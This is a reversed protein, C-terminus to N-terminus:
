QHNNKQGCIISNGNAKNIAYEEILIGNRDALKLKIWGFMIVDNKTIKIALYDGSFYFHYPMNGTVNLFASNLFVLDNNIIEGQTIAKADNNNMTAISYDASLASIGCFFNYHKGSSGGQSVFYHSSAFSFDAISDSDIDLLFHVNTDEPYISGNPIYYQVSHILTDPSIDYFYINDVQDIHEPPSEKKCSFLIFSSLILLINLPKM